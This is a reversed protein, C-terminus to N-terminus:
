ETLNQLQKEIDSESLNQELLWEANAGKYKFMYEVLLQYELYLGSQKYDM